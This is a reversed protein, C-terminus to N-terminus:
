LTSIYSRCSKKFVALSPSNQTSIPLKNFWYPGCYSFSRKKYETRVQPVFLPSNLAYRTHYLVPRLRLLRNLYNPAQGNLIKYVLVCCQFKIREEISQVNLDSRYSSVSTHRNVRFILRIYKNQLRQLKSRNTQSYIGWSTCCYDIHPLIMAYYLNILNKHTLFMRIRRICGIARSIKMTIHSLHQSWDLRSDLVVGLYKFTDVKELKHEDYYLDLKANKMKCKRGFLMVKTKSVNLILKNLKLWKCIIEFQSQALCQLENESKSKCFIATDDAYLCLKTKESLKLNSIDNIFLCFLLPGLISGQPVGSRVPLYNSTTGNIVVCQKRDTLYNKFWLLEKGRVGYCCLKKIMLQHSILDFAKKLDLMIATTYYSDNMNNLLYEHIDCVSTATSYFKRFGSQCNSIIFHDDLYKYFQNYVARELIKSPIPLVSIPRYNNLNDKSNGKHIPIIKATNFEIPIESSNLSKNFIITMPEAIIDAACKLLKPHMGDIGISKSCDLSQLENMVYDVSIDSFEFNSTINPLTGMENLDLDDLTENETSYTCAIESFHKNFENALQEDNQINEGDILCEFNDVKKRNALLEKMVKWTKKMDNGAKHIMNNYYAKKLKTNMSNAKNRLKKFKEWCENKKDQPEDRGIRNHKRKFYDRERALSLYEETIWPAGNVKKRVTILPAHKNCISNFTSKFNDWAKTVNQSNILNDWDCEGLLEQRFKEQDFKRFSRFSTVNPKNKTRELELIVYVLSHDSLGVSQIGSDIDKFALSVLVLDILTRSHPTVRTPETIVQKMNMLNCLDNVRATLNNESLMNVNFDGMVIVNNSETLVREINEELEEFHDICTDPKRYYVGLFYAPRGRQKLELWMCELTESELDCRRTYKIDEKIYCGIGGGHTKRDKREFAYNDIRVASSPTDEQLWTESLSLIDYPSEKLFAYVEDFKNNISRINLHALKVGPNNPFTYETDNISKSLDDSIETPTAITSNLTHIDADFFPLQQLICKPCQWNIFHENKDDYLTKSIDVCKIHTWNQCKTCLIGRQNSRVVQNCCVCPFKIAM